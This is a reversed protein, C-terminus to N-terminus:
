PAGVMVREMKLISNITTADDQNNTDNNVNEIYTYENNQEQNTLSKSVTDTIRRLGEERTDFKKRWGRWYCVFVLGAVVAMSIAAFIGNIELVTFQKENDHLHIDNSGNTNFYKEQATLDPVQHLVIVVKRKQNLKISECTINNNLETNIQFVDNIYNTKYVSHTHIESTINEPYVWKLFKDDGTVCTLNLVEDVTYQYHIKWDINGTNYEYLINEDTLGLVIPDRNTELLFKINALLKYTEFESYCQFIKGDLNRTEILATSTYGSTQIVDEIVIDENKRNIISGYINGPFLQTKKACTVNLLHEYSTYKYTYIDAGDMSHIKTTLKKDNVTVIFGNNGRPFMKFVTRYTFDQQGRNIPSFFTCDAYSQNFQKDNMVMRVNLNIDKHRRDQTAIDIVETGFRDYFRLRIHGEDYNKKCHLDITDGEECVYYNILNYSDVSHEKTNFIITEGGITVDVFEKTNINVYLYVTIFYIISRLSAIM